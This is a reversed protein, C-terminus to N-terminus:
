LSFITIFQTELKICFETLSSPYFKITAKKKYIQSRVRIDKIQKFPYSGKSFVCRSYIENKIIVARVSFYDVLSQSALLPFDYVFYNFSELLWLQNWSASWTLVSLKPDCQIWFHILMFSNIFTSCNRQLHM